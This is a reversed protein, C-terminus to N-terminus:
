WGWGSLCRSDAKARLQGAARSRHILVEQRARSNDNSDDVDTVVV